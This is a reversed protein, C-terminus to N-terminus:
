MDDLFFLISGILYAMLYLMCDLEMATVTSVICTKSDVPLLLLLFQLWCKLLMQLLSLEICVDRKIEYCGQSSSTRM